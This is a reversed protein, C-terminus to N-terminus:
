KRIGYKKLIQPTAEVGKNFHYKEFFAKKGITHIETHHERCLSMVERGVHIVETRDNGMGIADIHHLEARRGCVACKKNELCTYVYQDIDDVYELLSFKTPVDNSLIFEILFSQFEAVLSMPADSLSFIKDGLMKTHEATFDLKFLKKAEEKTYGSWDAIAGILAYCMNRQRDSLKRSDIPEVYCEKVQRHVFQDLDIECKITAIGNQDIDVVQGKYM